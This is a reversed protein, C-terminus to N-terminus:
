VKTVMALARKLSVGASHVLSGCFCVFVILLSTHTVIHFHTHEGVQRRLTNAKASLSLGLSGMTCQWVSPMPTFACRKEEEGFLTLVLSLSFSHPYIFM